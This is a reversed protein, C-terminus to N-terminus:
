PSTAPTNLTIISIRSPLLPMRGFWNPSLTIIPTTGEELDVRTLIVNLAGDVSRGALQSRLADPQLQAIVLARGTMALAIQNTTGDYVAEGREYTITSTQLSRGPPIQESLRALAVSQAASEDLAAATITARMTLSVTPTATGIDHSFTETSRVISLTEEVIFQTPSLSIQMDQFAREQLQQQMLGNLLDIDAQTVIEVTITQGGVTPARNIVDVQGDVPTILTNILNAGVNGIEGTYAELAEIPAETEQGSGGPLVVEQTTRFQVPTGTGTSVITEAPITISGAGRNIFVISGTASVQRLDERGTAPITQTDEVEATLLIASITGLDTDLTTGEPGASVTISVPVELMQEDLMITVTAQPVFVYAAGGILGFLLALLGVRSLTRMVFPLERGDSRVRSAVEMLDGPEAQDKPRQSRSTFVRSRGRKWRGRESAGITEFTSINLETANKIVQPDHTVIALRIARRMAERQILVLDLKRTLATGSEPWILLVSRGRIFSLRDKVSVVDEGAEIQVFDPKHTM